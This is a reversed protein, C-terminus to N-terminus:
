DEKRVNVLLALGIFIILLPWLKSLSFWPVYMQVLFFVGLGLLILGFLQSGRNPKKQYDSAIAQAAVKAKQSFEEADKKIKETQDSVVEGEEVDKNKGDAKPAEPIVVAAIIYFLIGAGGWITLLVFILRVIIPDVEFYEGLGGAVGLLVRDTKSRYIKRTETM